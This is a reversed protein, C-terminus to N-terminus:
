RTGPNLRRFLLTGSVVAVPVLFFQVVPVWLLLFLAGGLGLTAAAHARLLRQTAFFGLGERAAPGAAYETAAWWSAWLFSLVMSAVNGVLPVVHLPLLAVVGAVMFALRLVTHLASRATGTLVAGLSFPTEPVPRGLARDTAQSLPDELPALVLHPVTLASIGFVM